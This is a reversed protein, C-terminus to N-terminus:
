QVARQLYTRVYGVQKRRGAHEDVVGGVSVKGVRMQLRFSVFDLHSNASEFLVFSFRVLDVLKLVFQLTEILRDRATPNLECEWDRSDIKAEQFTGVNYQILNSENVNFRKAVSVKRDEGDKEMKTFDAELALSFYRPSNILACLTKTAATQLFYYKVSKAEFRLM